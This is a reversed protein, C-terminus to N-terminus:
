FLRIDTIVQMSCLRIYVDTLAVSFLSSWAYLQHRRNLASVCDYCTKGLGGKALHDKGGGILHRLSHCGFTYLGILVVNTTMLLAGLNVHFGDDWRYAILADYSLMFIFLVALYLFYRHINMILLPWKKEGRYEDRPEGVACAPPDAWFAKYYAGRYYYCTMRFGLPALLILMAPSYKLLGHPWWPPETGFLAHPSKGFLEPSYFPSLYPGHWYHEGQFLAWTTYVVFGSFVVFTAAPSFLWNDKRMTKFFPRRDPLASAPTM